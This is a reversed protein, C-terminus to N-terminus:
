SRDCLFTPGVSQPLPNRMSSDIDLGAVEDGDGSGEVEVSEQDGDNATPPPSPSPSPSPDHTSNRRSSNM